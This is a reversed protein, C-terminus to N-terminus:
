FRNVLASKQSISDICIKFVTVSLLLFVTRFCFAAPQHSARSSGESYMRSHQESTKASLSFAYAAAPNVTIDLPERQLKLAQRAVSLCISTTGRPVKHRDDKSKALVKQKKIL